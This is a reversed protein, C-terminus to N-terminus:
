KWRETVMGIAAAGTAALIVALSGPILAFCLMFLIVASFMVTLDRIRQKRGMIQMVLLGIFMAPLAYDLGYQEPDPIWQGFAAGAMNAAIWNVQATINLGLMWMGKHPMDETLRNAAVGFTEDTLQAGILVNRAASEKRFFPALAASLLLHRANVFFVTGVISAASAGGSVMAAVIFQASGAYLFVSLLFIELMSFGATAEVVGAAFGISWYGLLTPVCDKIGQVFAHIPKDQQM